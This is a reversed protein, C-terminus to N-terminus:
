SMARATVGREHRVVLEIAAAAIAPDEHEWVRVVHWGARGLVADTESDRAITRDLKITWWSSNSKPRTGHEPCGHWFCGNVFVAVKAGTFIVDARRQPLTSLPAAHVRYRLGRRFLERRLALEPGTDRKKSLVQM